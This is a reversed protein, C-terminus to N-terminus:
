EVEPPPKPDPSVTVWPHSSLYLYKQNLRFHYDAAKANFAARNQLQELLKKHHSLENLFGPDRRGNDIETSIREVVKQM